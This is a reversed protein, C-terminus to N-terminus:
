AWKGTCLLEMREKCISKWPTGGGHGPKDRRLKAVRTFFLSSKELMQMDVRHESSPGIM